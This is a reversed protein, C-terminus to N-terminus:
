FDSLVNEQFRQFWRDHSKKQRILTMKHRMLTMRNRTLHTSKYTNSPLPLVLPPFPLVIGPRWILTPAGPFTGVIDCTSEEVCYMQKRFVKPEFM